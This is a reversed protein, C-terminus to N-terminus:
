LRQLQVGCEHHPDSLAAILPVVANSYKSDAVQEAASDGGIRGFAEITEKVTERALERAAQARVKHDSATLQKILISM